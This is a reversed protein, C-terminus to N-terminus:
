MILAGPEPAADTEIALGFDPDYLHTYQPTLAYGFGELERVAGLGDLTRLEHERLQVVFPQLGRASVRGGGYQAAREFERVKNAADGWPVVVPKQGEDDIIRVLGAVNAFNLQERQTMVGKPDLAASQYLRRFYEELTHQDTFDLEGGRAELMLEAVALGKSLVGKPPETEARFVHVDGLAPNGDSDTLTGNRNCRGAAQALSDLGAMARFVVPFDMDVGAEVLQTSVVRCTDGCALGQRIAALTALRHAACMNTSLHFRGARPLLESLLRADKRKHVIALVRPHRVVESAVDAYPTPAGGREPWRVRVRHLRSGLDTPDVIIERVDELGNPLAERKRLAPQTATSLVISCGYGHALQRLADILCTLLDTPLTQAEDIVVISQAINHLKRCRSPDNSFLSEFFQVSTTVIVPADWNEASLRRRVELDSSEEHRGGANVASHHEIVNHSNLVSSYVAATQEIISTYPIVVIVRRLLHREAHRLAFSMASLTKGGGTPVTLSFLGPPLRAAARCEALVRARLQNVETDAPFADICQDLRARLAPIPEFDHVVDRKRPEYFAETALRDADILSSFLFRTWFEFAMRADQDSTQNNVHPPLTPAAGAILLPPLVSRVSDLVRAGEERVVKLPLPGGGSEVLNALGTHHGAIAFAVATLKQEAALAAGASAHPAQIKEGRIRAQFEARYKGVDHWLGALHGWDSSNFAGAFKSALEAVQGLHLQLPEWTEEPADARSHAFFTM